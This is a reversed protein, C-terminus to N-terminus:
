RVHAIHLSHLTMPAGINGLGKTKDPIISRMAQMESVIREFFWARVEAYEKSEVRFTLVNTKKNRNYCIATFIDDFTAGPYKGRQLTVSM